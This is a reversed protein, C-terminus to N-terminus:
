DESFYYYTQGNYNRLFSETDPDPAGPTYFHTTGAHSGWLLTGDDLTTVIPEGGARDPDIIAQTFELTGTPTPCGGATAATAVPTILMVGALAMILGTVLLRHAIRMANGWM